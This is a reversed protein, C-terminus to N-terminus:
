PSMPRPLRPAPVYLRSTKLFAPRVCTELYAKLYIARFAEDFQENAMEELRSLDTAMSIESLISSFRPRMEEKLEQLDHEAELVEARVSLPMELKM